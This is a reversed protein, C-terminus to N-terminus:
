GSVPPKDTAKTSVSVLHPALCIQDEREILALLQFLFAEKQTNTPLANIQKQVLEYTGEITQTKSWANLLNDYDIQSEKNTPVMQPTHHKTTGTLSQMEKFFSLLESHESYPIIEVGQNRWAERATREPRYMLSYITPMNEGLAEKLDALIGIFDPDRLSFGVTLVPHMVFLSNLIIKYKPNTRLAEYSDETLIVNEALNGTKYICGHIKALFGPKRFSDIDDLFQPYVLPQLRNSQHEFVMDFNTTIIGRFPTKLIVEHLPSTCLDPPNLAQKLFAVFQDPRTRQKFTLAAQLHKGQRVMEELSELYQADCNDADRLDDIMRLILTDWDPLGTGDARVGSASLGAGVFLVVRSPDNDITRRLQNTLHLPM